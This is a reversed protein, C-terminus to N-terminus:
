GMLVLAENSELSVSLWRQLTPHWVYLYEAGHNEALIRLADLSGVQEAETDEEGRDRGYAICVGPIPAEFSHPAENPERDLREALVSLDGLALLADVREQHDYHEQLTNFAEDDGDWHLYSALYTEDFRLAAIIASTSM